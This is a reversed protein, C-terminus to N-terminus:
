RGSKKAKQAKVRDLEAQWEPTLDADKPSVGASKRSVSSPRATSMRGEITPGGFYDDQNLEKLADAIDEGKDLVKGNKLFQGGKYEYGSVTKPSVKAASPTKTLKVPLPPQGQAQRAEDILEGKSKGLPEKAYVDKGQRDLYERMDQQVGQDELLEARGPAPKSPGPIQFRGTPEDPPFNIPLGTEAAAAPIRGLGAAPDVETPRGLGRAQSVEPPPEDPGLRVKSFVPPPGPPAPEPGLRTKSVLPIGTPAEDPGLKTKSFVPEPATENWYKGVKAAQRVLPIDEAAGMALKGGTRAIRGIPVKGVKAGGYGGALGGIDGALDSQDESAGLAKAGEKGAMQGAAGTGLAVATAVPAAAAAFPLTVPALGEGAGSIVRHAGKAIDGHAIDTVGGGVEGATRPIYEGINEPHGEFSGPIKGSPPVAGNILDASHDALIPNAPRQVSPPNKSLDPRKEEYDQWGGQAQPSFDQWGASASM